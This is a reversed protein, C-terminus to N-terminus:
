ATCINGTAHIADRAADSGSLMWRHQILPWRRARAHQARIPPPPITVSLGGGQMAKVWFLVCAVARKRQVQGRDHLEGVRRARLSQEVELSIDPAHSHCAYCMQARGETVRRRM